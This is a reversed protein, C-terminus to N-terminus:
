DFKTVDHLRMVENWDKRRRRKISFYSGSLRGLWGSNVQQTKNERVLVEPDEPLGLYDVAFQQVLVALDDRTNQLSLMTEADLFLLRLLSLM